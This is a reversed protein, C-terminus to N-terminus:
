DCPPDELKAPFQPFRKAFLETIYKVREAGKKPDAKGEKAQGFSESELAGNWFSTGTGKDTAEDYERVGTTECVDNYNKIGSLEDLPIEGAEEVKYTGEEISFTLYRAQIADENGKCAGGPEANECSSSKQFYFKSPCTGPLSFWAAEGPLAVRGVDNKAGLPTCGLVFGLPDWHLMSCGPVTCKAKDFAVFADFNKGQGYLEKTARYTVKFRTLRSINFKREM